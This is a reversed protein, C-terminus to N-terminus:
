VGKRKWLITSVILRVLFKETFIHYDKGKNDVIWLTKNM